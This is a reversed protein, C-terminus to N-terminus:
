AWTPGSLMNRLRSSSAISRAMSSAPNPRKSCRSTSVNDPPSRRAGPENESQGLVCRQQHDALRGNMEVDAGLPLHEFEHFLEVLMVIHGNHGHEVVQVVSRGDGVVHHHEVTTPDHASPRQPLCEVLRNERVDETDIGRDDGVRSGSRRHDQLM